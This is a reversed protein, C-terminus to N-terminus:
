ENDPLLSHEIDYTGRRRWGSEVFSLYDVAEVSSGPSLSCEGRPPDLVKHMQVLKTTCRETLAYVNKTLDSCGSQLGIYRNKLGFFFTSSCSM